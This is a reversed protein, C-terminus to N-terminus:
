IRGTILAWIALVISIMIAMSVFGLFWQPIGYMINLGTIMDIIFAISTPIVTLSAWVTGFLSDLVDTVKFGEDTKNINNTLSTVVNNLEDYKYFTDNFKKYEEGQIIQNDSTNFSSILSLSGTLIIMFVIAGFLLNKITDTM